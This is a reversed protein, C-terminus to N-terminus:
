VPTIDKAIAVKEGEWRDIITSLGELKIEGLNQEITPGM